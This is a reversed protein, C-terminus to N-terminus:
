DNGRADDPPHHSKLQEATKWDLVVVDDETGYNEDFGPAVLRCRDGDVEYRLLYEDGVMERGTGLDPIADHEIAFERLKTLVERRHVAEQVVDGVASSLGVLAAFSALIAFGVTLLFLTGLGGVVIGAIAIGRPRKFLGIASILLGIPCLLGCTLFGLVSVILGGLGLGNTENAQIIVQQHIPATQQQAPPRHIPPKPPQGESM